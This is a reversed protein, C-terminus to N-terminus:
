VTRRLPGAAKSPVCRREIYLVMARVSQINERLMGLATNCRGCLLGRVRNTDHCHDVVLRNSPTDCIACRGQQIRQLERYAASTLGYKKEISREYARWRQNVKKLRELEVPDHIRGAEEEADLQDMWRALRADIELLRATTLM